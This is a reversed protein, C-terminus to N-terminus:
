PSATSPPKLWLYSFDPRTKERHVLVRGGRPGAEPPPAPRAGRPSRWRAPPTSAPHASQCREATCWRRVFIRAVRPGAVSAGLAPEVLQHGGPHVAPADVAGVVVGVAPARARGPQARRGLAGRRGSASSTSRAPGLIRSPLSRARAGPSAPRAPPRRPRRRGARVPRDGTLQGPSASATVTPRESITIPSPVGRRATISPRASSPSTVAGSRAGPASRGACPSRGAGVDLRGLGVSLSCSRASRATAASSSASTTARDKTREPCSTRRSRPARAASPQWARTIAFISFTSAKSASSSITSTESPTITARPSRPTSAPTARTGSICFSTIRRAPSAPLSTMVAVWISSDIIVWGSGVRASAVSTALAIRSPVEATISEPSVVTPGSGPRPRPPSPRSRRALGLAACGQREITM